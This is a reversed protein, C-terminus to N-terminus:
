IMLVVIEELEYYFDYKTGIISLEKTSNKKINLVKHLGVFRSLAGEEGIFSIIYIAGKFVDRSQQSQYTLFNNKSTYM